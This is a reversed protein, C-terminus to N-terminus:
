GSRGRFRTASNVVPAEITSEWCPGGHVRRLQVSVPTTLPLPPLALNAGRGKVVIRGAKGPHFVITGLGDPSLNANRYKLSRTTAKWCPAGACVGEQPALATLVLTDNAYMCMLYDSAAPEPGLDGTMLGSRSAWKWEIRDRAHRPM